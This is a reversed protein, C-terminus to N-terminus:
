GSVGPESSFEATSILAGVVALEERIRADAQQGELITYSFVALRLSHPPVPIAVEWRHIELPQGDEEASKVYYRMPLGDSRLEHAGKFASLAMQSAPEKESQFSLVNLRLTGSDPREEFFTAGGEPLYQEV